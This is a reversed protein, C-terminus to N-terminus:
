RPRHGKAKSKKTPVHPDEPDINNYAKGTKKSKTRTIRPQLIVYLYVNEGQFLEKLGPRGSSTDTPKKTDNRCGALVFQCCVPTWKNTSEDVQKELHTRVENMSDDYVTFLRMKLNDSSDLPLDFITPPVCDHCQFSSMLMGARDPKDNANVFPHWGAYRLTHMVSVKLRCVSCTVEPPYDHEGFHEGWFKSSVTFRMLTLREDVRVVLEAWFKKSKRDIKM